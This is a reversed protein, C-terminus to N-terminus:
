YTTGYMYASSKDASKPLGTSDKTMIHGSDPCRYVNAAIIYAREPGFVVWENPRTRQSTIWYANGRREQDAIRNELYRKADDADYVSTESELKYLYQCGIPEANLQVLQDAGNEHSISSTCGLLFCLAFLLYFNKM